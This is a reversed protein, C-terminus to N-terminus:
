CASNGNSLSSNTETARPTATELVTRRGLMRFSMFALLFCLLSGMRSLM